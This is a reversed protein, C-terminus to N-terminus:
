IKQSLFNIMNTSKSIKCLPRRNNVSSGNTNSNFYISIGNGTIKQHCGAPKSDSNIPEEYAGQVMSAADQCEAETPITEYNGGPDTSCDNTNFDRAYDYVTSPLPAASPQNSPSNPDTSPEPTIKTQVHHTLKNLSDTKKHFFKQYTPLSVLSAFLDGILHLQDTPIETSIFKLTMKPYEKIVDLLGAM